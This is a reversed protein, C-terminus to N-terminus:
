LIGRHTCDQPFWQLFQLPANFYFVHHGDSSARGPFSSSKFLSYYTEEHEWKLIEGPDMFHASVPPRHKGQSACFIFLFEWGGALCACVGLPLGGMDTPVDQARIGQGASQQCHGTMRDEARTWFGCRGRWCLLAGSGPGLLSGVCGMQRDGSAVVFRNPIRPCRAQLSISVMEQTIAPTTQRNTQKNERYAFVVPRRISSLGGPHSSPSPTAKPQTSREWTQGSDESIFKLIWLYSLLCQKTLVQTGTLNM